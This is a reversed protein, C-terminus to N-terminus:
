GTAGYGVAREVQTMFGRAIDEAQAYTINQYDSPGPALDEAYRWWIVEADGRSGAGTSYFRELGYQQKTWEWVDRFIGEGRREMLCWLLRSRACKMQCSPCPDDRSSLDFAYYSVPQGTTDDIAVVVTWLPEIMGLLKENMELERIVISM